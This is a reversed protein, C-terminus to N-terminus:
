DPAIRVRVYKGPSDDTMVAGYTVQQGETVRELTTIKSAASEKEIAAKVAAPLSALDTGDKVALLNGKEDIILNHTEGRNM